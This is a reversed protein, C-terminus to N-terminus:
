GACVVPLIWDEVRGAPGGKERQRDVLYRLAIEVLYARAIDPAIDDAVGFPRLLSPAKTVLGRAADQTPTRDQLQERLEHHLADWGLPVGEECREWDWVLAESGHAACNWATWDGHWTGHEWPRTLAALGALAEIVAERVPGADLGRAQEAMRSFAPAEVFRHRTVTGSRAVMTMARSLAPGALTTAAGLPLHDVVLLAADNWVGAHLVRPARVPGLDREGVLTLNEAERLVLRRTLPETGVKAVALPRLQRDLIQLIPKRNARPPGLHVGLVVPQDLVRALEREM